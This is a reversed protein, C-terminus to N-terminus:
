RLRDLKFQKGKFAEIVPEGWFPTPTYQWDLLLRPSAKPHFCWATWNLKHKQIVGIMAPVWTEADEQLAHDMWDMKNADAGVEGVLIPHQEAVDLFSKQWGKKWPYVHTAYMIGHGGPHEEIAYGKLVGSLDYAWDLGGIVVINDAGAQRVVDLLGQMGVAQYGQKSKLLDEESLFADEDAKTKRTDIFGGNRWTEWSTGHPENLLDFLVAPHGKYAIAAETWFEADEPRPARYHHLDLVVYAGRNAVYTIFDNVLAQYEEGKKEDLWYKGKVPLRIVNAGWDEIAVQASKLVNEGRPNWEMSAINVGQLWVENGDTDHLRNGVVKLEPPWNAKNPAEADVHLFARTAARKKKAALLPAPDIMTLKLNDLELVGSKVNFLTPMIEMSVAGEPVLMKRSRHQWGDTSRRTYSDAAGPLKKGSRDLFKMMIRADHWPELGPKLDTVRWDWSFELAEAGAPIDLKSYHMVMKDTSDSQLRLFNNGGESGYSMDGKPSGWSDPRGDSNSDKQFDGNAFMNGGHKEYNKLAKDRQAQAKRMAALKRQHAPDDEPSLKPIAKFVVDDLDYTGAAVNFLCPMFKIFRAGEPLNFVVSKSEWGNTDRSRNSTPGSPSVKERAADMFEMMIRADFWSKEGRKLGTVRQKWSFEVAEVGEPIPVERYLMVMEGPVQSEMRIFHNGAESEISSEAKQPWHDPWTGTAGASEFDSVDFVVGSKSTEQAALSHISLASALCSALCLLLTLKKMFESLRDM